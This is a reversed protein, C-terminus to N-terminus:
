LEKVLMLSLDDDVPRFEGHAVTKRDYTVGNGDPVYGSHAYLIQAPGYSADLGVGIGIHMKGAERALGECHAILARAAGRRRMDRMVNLDQIEPIDFRRYFAYKPAWNLFCYGADAGDLAAIYIPRDDRAFSQEFYGGVKASGVDFAIALLVSLDGPSAKRIDINQM